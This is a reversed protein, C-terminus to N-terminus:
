LYVIASGTPFNLRKGWFAIGHVGGSGADGVDRIRHHPGTQRLQGAKQFVPDLRFAVRPLYGFDELLTFLPFFVAMPPLMVSVVWSLVRYIGDLLVGTLWPPAHLARLGESLRAGLWAFGDSLWQSPLNSASITIWFILALLALMIPIGFRRSLLIRDLKRDRQHADKRMTVCRGAIREAEGMLCAVIEDAIDQEGFGKRLERLVPGMEPPAKWDPLHERISRLMSENGELLRLSLWRGDCPADEVFPRLRQLAIEIRPAYRIRRPPKTEACVADVAEKLADFGKGSRAAMPIVPVGLEKQLADIDVSIGKKEAEDMLNVCVVVSGTVELIQLVLNLNRELCTADCVAVTCDSRHFCVADRAAIEDESEALLSYTGPVDRLIRRAGGSRYQGLNCGVTKGAWNGTHQRAGTLGNFVTSKGVNPNGALCVTKEKPITRNKTM